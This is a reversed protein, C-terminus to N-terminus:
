RIALPLPGVRPRQVDLQLGREVRGAVALDLSEAGVGGRNM